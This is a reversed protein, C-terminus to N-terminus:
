HLRWALCAAAGICHLLVTMWYVQRFATKSSKHRLVQQAAWAGLWSSLDMPQSLNRMTDFAASTSQAPCLTLSRDSALRHNSSQLM